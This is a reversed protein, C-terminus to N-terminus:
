VAERLAEEIHKRYLVSMLRGDTDTVVVSVTDRQRMRALIDDLITDPRITTPGEEMVEDVRSQPEKDWIDDRLRGLVVRQDNVVICYNHGAAVVRQRVEGLREEPKCTPVDPSAHEAVRAVEALRGEVPLGNSSWDKKGAEYRYVTTFGMAELRWAARSSM